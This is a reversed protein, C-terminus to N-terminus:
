VPDTCLRLNKFFDQFKCLLKGSRFLTQFLSINTQFFPLFDPMPLKLVRTYIDANYIFLKADSDFGNWLQEVTQIGLQDLHSSHSLRELNFYANGIILFTKSYRIHNQGSTIPSGHCNHAVTNKLKLECVSRESSTATYHLKQVTSVLECTLIMKRDSLKIPQSCNQCLVSMVYIVPTGLEPHFISKERSTFYSSFFADARAPQSGLNCTALQFKPKPLNSGNSTLLRDNSTKSPTNSYSQLLRQFNVTQRNIDSM